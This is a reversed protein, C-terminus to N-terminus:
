LFSTLVVLKCWNCNADRVDDGASIQIMKASIMMHEYSPILCLQSLHMGGHNCQSAKWKCLRRVSIVVLLQSICEIRYRSFVIGQWPSPFFCRILPRKFYLGFWYSVRCIHNHIADNGVSRHFETCHRFGVPILHYWVCIRTSYVSYAFYWLSRGSFSLTLLLFRGLLSGNKRRQTFDTTRCKITDKVSKM